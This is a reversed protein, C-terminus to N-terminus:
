NLLWKVQNIKEARLYLLNNYMKLNIEASIFM